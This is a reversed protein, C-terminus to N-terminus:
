GWVGYGSKIEITSRYYGDYDGHIGRLDGSNGKGGDHGHELGARCGNERADELGEGTTRALAAIDRVYTCKPAKGEGETRNRLELDHQAFLM